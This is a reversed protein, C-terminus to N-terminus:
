NKKSRFKMKFKMQKAVFNSSYLKLLDNMVEDHIDYSTKFVWQFKTNNFNAIITNNGDLMQIEIKGRSSDQFEQEEQTKTVERKRRCNAISCIENHRTVFITVISFLDEALKGAESSKTSVISLFRFDIKSVHITSVDISLVVPIKSSKNKKLKPLKENEEVIPSPVYKM